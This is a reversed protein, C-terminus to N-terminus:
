AGTSPDLPVDYPVDPLQEDLDPASSKQTASNTKRKKKTKKKREM